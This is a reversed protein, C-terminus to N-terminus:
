TAMEVMVLALVGRVSWGITRIWNTRVLRTADVADWREALRGHLPVQLLVTSATVGGLLVLAVLALGVPVGDPPAAVLLLATAGEVAMPPGVVWATRQTHRAEYAVFGDVPVAAFLPYHVVQVFWIVGVMTLTAAAHLLLATTM